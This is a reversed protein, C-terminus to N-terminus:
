GALVSMLCVLKSQALEVQSDAPKAGIHRHRLLYQDFLDKIKFHRAANLCSQRAPSHEGSDPDRCHRDQKM